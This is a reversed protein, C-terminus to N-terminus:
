RRAGAEALQRRELYTNYDRERWRVKVGLRIKPPFLPDREAMRWVTRECVHMLEALQHVDLLRDATSLGPRPPLVHNTPRTRQQRM